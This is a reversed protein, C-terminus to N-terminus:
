IELVEAHPYPRGVEAYMRSWSRGLRNPTGLLSPYRTFFKAMGHLERKWADWSRGTTERAWGHVWRVNGVLVTPIGVSWGRLGLDHDEYYVFFREDWGGLREFTSRRGVVAAGMVWSVYRSSRPDAFIQYAAAHRPNLRHAVKRALTPVGRGNPQPTGDPNLLQPALMLPESAGDLYKGLTHLDDYNVQVDPNVFAVYDGRAARLAVNNAAAFGVNQPLTTLKGGFRKATAASADSSANDVVLWEVGDPIRQSFFRQLAEASNYTVTILSWRPRTSAGGSGATSSTDSASSRDDEDPSM